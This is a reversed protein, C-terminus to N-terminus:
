GRRRRQVGFEKWVSAAQTIVTSGGAGGVPRHWIVMGVESQALTQAAAGIAASAVPDVEGNISVVGAVGPIYTRGRLLRRGVVTGTAWRVLICTANALPITSSPNGVGTLNTPESWVSVLAGTEENYENGGQDIIWTTDKHLYPKCATYFAALAARQAAQDGAEDFYNVTLGSLGGAGSWRTIIERVM